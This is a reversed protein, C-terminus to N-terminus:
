RQGDRGEQPHGEFRRLVSLTFWTLLGAIIALGLRGVGAAVGAAATLWISAATTLGRVHQDAQTKLIAGAGIFGIGAAIGQVIRAVDAVGMGAMEGALAFVSAGLSVLVHTRFGAPKHMHERNIGVMAGVAMAVALRIVIRAFEGASPLGATFETLWSPM